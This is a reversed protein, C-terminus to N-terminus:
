YLDVGFFASITPLSRWISIMDILSAERPDAARDKALVGDPRVLPEDRRAAMPQCTLTYPIQRSAPFQRTSGVDSM